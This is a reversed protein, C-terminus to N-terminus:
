RIVALDERSPEFTVIIRDAHDLIRNECEDGLTRADPCLALDLTVFGDARLGLVRSHTLGVFHRM